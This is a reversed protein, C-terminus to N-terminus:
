ARLVGAKAPTFEDRHFRADSIGFLEKETAGKEM